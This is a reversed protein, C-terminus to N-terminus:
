YRYQSVPPTLEEIKVVLWPVTARGERIGEETEGLM